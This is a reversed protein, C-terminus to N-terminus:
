LKNSKKNKNQKPFWNLIFRILNLKIIVYTIILMLFLSIWFPWVPKASFLITPIDAFDPLVNMGLLSAFLTPILFITAIKTLKRAEENDNKEATISAFQNLEGIENDLDKVDSPIRMIKQMMDYLEIGQEQATVERFYIKNVFLIYHKYLESIRHTIDEEKDDLLLNSVHTVEDSFSLVTARQLLCLEAMKYYMTQLHRVLFTSHCKELDSFSSTLMVFSFRSIGFLTGKEVWRSYTNEKLLKQKAFRDTHMPIGSDNFIYCYWWDSCDGKEFSYYKKFERNDTLYDTGLFFDNCEEIQNLENVLESNGYWCVVHMRDDLVPMLLIKYKSNKKKKSPDLYGDNESILFFDQPFLGKIFKPLTFSGTKFYDINRYNEFDEYLSKDDSGLDPKGIWLANPIECRKTACLVKDPNTNDPKGSVISDPELDFFPVYTRRGFKNIKLIDDKDPYSYNRLHFSLVATGTKYVNLLISDIELSFVKDEGCLMINYKKGDDLKYEFHNILDDETTSSKVTHHLDYLVERVYDYFYNFENYHDFHNLEFEKRMWSSNRELEEAFKRVDFKEYLSTKHDDINRIRWKFPFIFIHHSYLKENIEPQIELIEKKIEMVEEKTVKGKALGFFGFDKGGYYAKGDDVLYKFKDVIQKKRKGYYTLTDDTYILLNNTKGFMKDTIPSFKEALSNIITIGNEETRNKEISEEALREDEESVGQSKRDFERIKEIEDKTACNCQMAPIYGKDNAAILRQWRDLEIGLLEAIQEISSKETEREDHHDIIVTRFSLAIDIVLEILVPIDNEKLRSIENKYESAHANNWQLKKDYFPLSYKTLIDKIELMEADYGGLFFIYNKIITKM